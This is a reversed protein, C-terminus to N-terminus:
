SPVVIETFVSLQRTVVDDFMDNCTTTNAQSIGSSCAAGSTRRLVTGTIKEKESSNSLGAIFSNILATVAGTDALALAVAVVLKSFNHAALGSVM